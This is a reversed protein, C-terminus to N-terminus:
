EVIGFMLWEVKIKTIEFGGYCPFSQGFKEKWKSHFFQALALYEEHYYTRVGQERGFYSARSIGVEKAVAYQTLKLQNRCWAIRTGVANLNRLDANEVEKQRTTNTNM